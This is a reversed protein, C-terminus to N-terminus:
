PRVAEYKALLLYPNTSTDESENLQTEYIVGLRGVFQDVVAFEYLRQGGLFDFCQLLRTDM